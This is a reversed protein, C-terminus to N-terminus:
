KLSERHQRIYNDEWDLNFHLWERGTKLCEIWAGLLMDTKPLVFIRSQPLKHLWRQFIEIDKVQIGENQYRDFLEKFKLLYETWLVLEKRFKDRSSLELISRAMAHIKQYQTISTRSFLSYPYPIHCSGASLLLKKMTAYFRVALKWDEGFLGKLASQVAHKKDAGYAAKAMMYYNLGYVTWHGLHFQSLICDAGKEGYWAIEDFIDEHHVMPLSVYLNVGMYYEYINVKGGARAKLWKKLDAAYCSNTGCNKDNIRHNICRWYPAFHV